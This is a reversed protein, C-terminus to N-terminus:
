GLNPMLGAEAALADAVVIRPLGTWCAVQMTHELQEPVGHLVLRRNGSMGEAARVMARIGGLDCFLVGGLDVYVDGGDLVAAALAGSLADVTSVDIVGELRLGPPEDTRSIQLTGGDFVTQGAPQRRWPAATPSALFAQAAPAFARLRRDSLFDAGLDRSRAWAWTSEEILRLLPGVPLGVEEFRQRREDVFAEIAGLYENVLHDLEKVSGRSDVLKARVRRLEDRYPASFGDFEEQIARVVEVRAPSVAAMWSLRDTATGLSCQPYFGGPEGRNKGTALHRCTLWTGLPRNSSDAATFTVAQYSPCGSFERPFPGPHPCRDGADSQIEDAMKRQVM